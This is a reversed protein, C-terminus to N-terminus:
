GYVKRIQKLHHSVNAATFGMLSGIERWTYGAALYQVIKRQVSSLKHDLLEIAASKGADSKVIPQLEVEQVHENRHRLLKKLCDLLRWRAFKLLYEESSGIEVNVRSLGEIVAMFAEQKLDEREIGRIWEYRRVIKDIRPELHELLKKRAERDGKGALIVLQKM